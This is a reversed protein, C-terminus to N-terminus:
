FRNRLSVKLRYTQCAETFAHFVAHLIDSPLSSCHPLLATVFLLGAVCEDLERTVVSLQLIAKFIPHLAIKPTWSPATQVIQGLLDLTAMVKKERITESLSDLFTQVHVWVNVVPGILSTNIM